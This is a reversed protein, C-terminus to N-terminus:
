LPTNDRFKKTTYKLKNKRRVQEMGIEIATIINNITEDSAPEDDFMLSNDKSELDKKLETLDDMLNKKTM